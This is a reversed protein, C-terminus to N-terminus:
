SNPAERGDRRILKDVVNILTHLRQDTHAQSRALQVQSEALTNLREDLKELHSALEQVHSTLSFSVEVLQRIMGETRQQAEQLQQIDEAFKAQQEVIFEMRNEIQENTM